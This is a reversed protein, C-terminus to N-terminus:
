HKTPSSTDEENALEKADDADGLWINQSLKEKFKQFKEKREKELKREINSFKEGFVEKFTNMFVDTDRFERFIPWSGYAIKDIVGNLGMKRMFECAGAFEDRLVCVCLQFNEGCASWDESALIEECKKQNGLWKHAQARNIILVRRTNESGKKMHPECSFDLLKSALHYKKDVLLDFTIDTLSSDAAEIDNPLLKRALVQSLKVGIEFICAHAQTFYKPSIELRAGACVEKPVECGNKRNVALYQQSVIGNTHVFLNRRENLEIFSGWADLGDRLPIGFKNEMWQFQDTRSKRIVSEIEKELLVGKVAELSEFELLEAVAINRTSAALLEPRASFIEKLMRGLFADFESVLAVFFGRPVLNINTVTKEMKRGLRNIHPTHREALYIEREKESSQTGYKKLYSLFEHTQFVSYGMYALMSLNLALALSDINTIFGSVVGQLPAKSNSEAGGTERGEADEDALTGKKAPTSRLKDVKGKTKENTSM